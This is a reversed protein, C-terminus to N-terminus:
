NTVFVPCFSCVTASERSYPSSVFTEDMVKSNDPLEFMSPLHKACSTGRIPVLGQGLIHEQILSLATAISEQAEVDFDYEAM